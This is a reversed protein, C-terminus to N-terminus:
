YQSSVFFSYDGVMMLGNIILFYWCKIVDSKGSVENEMVKPLIILLFVVFVVTKTRQHNAYNSLFRRM